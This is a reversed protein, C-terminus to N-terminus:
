PASPIFVSQPPNAPPACPRYVFTILLGGQAAQSVFDTNGIVVAGQSSPLNLSNEILESDWSALGIAGSFARIVRGTAPQRVVPRVLLAYSGAPTSLPEGIESVGLQVGKLVLNPVSIQQLGAGVQAVPTISRQVSSADLHPTQPNAWDVEWAVVDLANASAPFEDTDILLRLEWENTNPGPELLGGQHVLGGGLDEPPPAGFSFDIGPVSALEQQPGLPQMLDVTGDGNFDAASGNCTLAAPANSAFPVIWTAGLQYQYGLGGYVAMDFLLLTENSERSSVVVDPYDNLDLLTGSLGAARRGGTGCVSIMPQTSGQGPPGIAVIQDETASVPAAWAFRAGFGAIADDGWPLSIVRGRSAPQPYDYLLAGTSLELVHLGQSDCVALEDNGDGTWDGCAIGFAPDSLM